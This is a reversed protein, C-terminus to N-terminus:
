ANDLPQTASVEDQRVLVPDLDIWPLRGHEPPHAEIIKQESLRTIAHEVLGPPMALDEAIRTLSAWIRGTRPCARLALHLLVMADMPALRGLARALPERRLTITDSPRTM